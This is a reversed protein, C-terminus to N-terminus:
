VVDLQLASVAAQKVLSTCLGCDGAQGVRGWGAWWGALSPQEAVVCIGTGQIVLPM